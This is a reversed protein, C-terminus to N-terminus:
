KGCVQDLMEFYIQKYEEDVILEDILDKSENVLIKIIKKAHESVEYKDMINIARQIDNTDNTANKLIGVLKGRDDADAVMLTKIVLYTLKGESIDEGLEKGLKGDQLNLLDDQIQFALGVKNALINLKSCVGEDADALIAGIQMSMSMLAGTKYECMQSYEELTVAFNGTDGWLIDMGQGLHVEIMKQNIIKLLRLKKDDTIDANDVIQNAYFYLFNGTNIAIGDGFMKHITKKGRRLESKDEVDDVMLTGTHIIEPIAAFDYIDTEEGGFSHYTLCTLLPRMRKGGRNFLELFPEKIAKEWMEDSIDSSNTTFRNLIASEIETLVKEIYNKM